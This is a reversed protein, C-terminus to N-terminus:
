VNQDMKQALRAVLYIKTVYNVFKIMLGINLCANVNAMLLHNILILMKMVFKVIQKHLVYQADMLKNQVYNVNKELLFINKFVYVNEKKLNLILITRIKVFYVHIKIIM